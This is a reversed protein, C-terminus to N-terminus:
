AIPHVWDPGPASCARVVPNGIGFTLPIMSESIARLVFAKGRLSTPTIDAYRVAGDGKASVEGLAGRGQELWDRLRRLNAPSEFFDMHFDPTVGSDPVDDEPLGTSDWLFALRQFTERLARGKAETLTGGAGFGCAWRPGLPTAPVEGSRPFCFVGVVEVDADGSFRYAEVQYNADLAAFSGQELSLPEPRKGSYWYRLVRDREILELRSARAAEEFSVHAAVGNSRSYQWSLEGRHWPSVEAIPVHDIVQGEGNLVPVTTGARQPRIGGLELLSTRELLEFYARLIPDEGDGSVASATAEQSDDRNSVLGIMRIRLGPLNLEDRFVDPTSWGPPLPYRALLSRLRPDASSM